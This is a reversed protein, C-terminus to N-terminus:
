GSYFRSKTKGKKHYVKTPPSVPSYGEVTQPALQYRTSGVVMPDPEVGTSEAMLLFRVRPKKKNAIFLGHLM